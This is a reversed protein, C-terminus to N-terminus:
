HRLATFAEAVTRVRGADLASAWHGDRKLSSGIIFGDAHAYRDINEATVGSGVYVPVQM